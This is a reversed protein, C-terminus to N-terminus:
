SKTQWGEAQNVVAAEDGAIACILESDLLADLSVEL